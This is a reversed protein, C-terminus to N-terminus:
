ARSPSLATRIIVRQSNAQPQVLSVAESVAENLGIASFDLDM